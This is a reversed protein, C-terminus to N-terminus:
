TDMISTDGISDGGATMKYLAAAEGVFGDLKGTKGEM